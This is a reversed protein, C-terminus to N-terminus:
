LPFGLDMSGSVRCLKQLCCEVSLESPTAIQDQANLLLHCSLRQHLSLLEERASTERINQGIPRIKIIM